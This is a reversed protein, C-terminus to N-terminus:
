NSLFYYIKKLLRYIFNNTIRDSFREILQLRSDISKLKEHLAANHSLLSLFTEVVALKDAQKLPNHQKILQQYTAFFNNAFAVVTFSDIVRKRGAEGIKRALEGDKLLVLAYKAIDEADNKDVLFGSIEHEILENTGGCRTSILPTKSALTELGVIPLGEFDSSIICIGIYHKLLTPIDTREGIFHINKTLVNKEIFANLELFYDDNNIPGVILFHTDKESELILKAAKIFLLINKQPTVRCITAILRSNVPINLELFLNTPYNNSASEDFSLLNIGNHIVQIKTSTDNEIFFTAADQSVPIILDSLIGYVKAVTSHSIDLGYFLVPTADYFFNNHIHWIHPTNTKLAAIAAEFPFITHTHVIDIKKDVIIKKIVEVRQSLQHVYNFAGNM